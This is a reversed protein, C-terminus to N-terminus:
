LGAPAFLVYLVIFILPLWRDLKFPGTPPELLVTALHEAELAIAAAEELEVQAQTLIISFATVGLVLGLKYIDVLLDDRDAYGFNTVFNHVPESTLFLFVFILLGPALYRM